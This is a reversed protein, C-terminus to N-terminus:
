YIVKAGVGMLALLEQKAESYPKERLSELWGEDKEECVFKAIRSIYKARYGFGLERLHSEVHDGTLATLPPFAHYTM